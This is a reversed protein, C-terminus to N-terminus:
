RDEKPSEVVLMTVNSEPALKKILRLLFEAIYPDRDKADLFARRKEESVLLDPHCCSFDPCCDGNTNPCLSDGQVWLELQEEPTPEDRNGPIDNVSVGPPLNWGSM